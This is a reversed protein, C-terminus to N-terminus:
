PVVSAGPQTCFPKMCLRGWITNLTVNIVSLGNSLHPSQTYSSWARQVWAGMAESALGSLLGISVLGFILTRLKKPSAIIHPLYIDNYWRSDQRWRQQGLPVLDLCLDRPTVVM